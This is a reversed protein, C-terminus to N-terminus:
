PLAGLFAPPNELHPAHGAGEILRLEARPLLAHMRRALAAFKEDRAGAILTVPVRLRPLEAWYSPQAAPGLHRLASALGAPRHRMREARLDAAFPLLSKLSPHQEWREFFKYLDGSDLTRALQEDDDRRGARETEREIGATGGELVLRAVPRRLALGLALRAGMSYGILETREDVLPELSDLAAEWSVADPASGHGPLDPILAELHRPFSGPGGAFGHLLVRRM